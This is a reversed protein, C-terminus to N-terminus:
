FSSEVLSGCIEDIQRGLEALDPREALVMKAKCLYDVIETGGKNRKGGYKVDDMDTFALAVLLGSSIIEGPELIKSLEMRSDHIISAHSSDVNGANLANEWWSRPVPMSLYELITRAKQKPPIGDSLACSLSEYWLSM